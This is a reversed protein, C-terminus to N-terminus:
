ASATAIFGSLSCDDPADKKALIEAVKTKVINNRQFANSLLQQNPKTLMGLQRGLQIAVELDKRTHIVSYARALMLEFLTKEQAEGYGPGYAFIWMFPVSHGNPQIGVGEERAQM